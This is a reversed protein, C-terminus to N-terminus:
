QGTVGRLGNVDPQKVTRDDASDEIVTGEHACDLKFGACWECTLRCGSGDFKGTEQTTSCGALLLIVALLRVM